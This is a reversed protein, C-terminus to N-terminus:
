TPEDLLVLDPRPLLAAALARRQPSGRPSRGSRPGGGGGRGARARGRGGRGGRGVLDLVEDIRERRGKRPMGALEAHFRLLDTGTAWEPFRFNEPLYGLRRRGAPDGAPRGLVEASGATAHVLGTLIKV